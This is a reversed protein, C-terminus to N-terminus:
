KAAPHYLLITHHPGPLSQINFSRALAAVFSHVALVRFTGGVRLGLLAPDTIIIKRYNSKNFQAVAQGLTEGRFSLKQRLWRLQRAIEHASGHHVVVRHATIVAEDDAWLVPVDAASADTVGEPPLVAVRGRRVFVQVTRADKRRVDFVTGVDRVTRGDASVQFPWRGHHVVNFQAEGRMLVVTRAARDFRVRLKTDANLTAVTGDSLVVRSLAGPGTRIVEVAGRATFNWWTLLGAVAAAIALAAVLHGRLRPLAPRRPTRTSRRVPALLDPDILGTPPRLRGLRETRAWAEALRLYAARHRPDASLWAALQADADSGRADSRAIWAAAREEIDTAKTM